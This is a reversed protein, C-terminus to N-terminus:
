EYSVVGERMVKKKLMLWMGITSAWGFCLTIFMGKAVSRNRNKCILYSIYFPLVVIIFLYLLAYM